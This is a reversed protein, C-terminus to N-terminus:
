QEEGIETSFQEGKGNDNTLMNLFSNVITKVINSDASVLGAEWSVGASSDAYFNMSSIIAIARDVVILKAHVKADYFM